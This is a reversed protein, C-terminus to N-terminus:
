QGRREGAQSLIVAEIEEDVFFGAQVRLRKLEESLNPIVGKLRADLLEGLVGSVTLGNLRAAQRGRKEDMLLREAKVALALRIAETEGADLSHTLRIESSAADVLLWETQLAANIEARGRSHSLASLERAVAPPIRVSGYRLRLLELRGIVALNCIPSTDSVVLM